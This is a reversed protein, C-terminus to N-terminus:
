LNGGALLPKIKREIEDANLPGVYKYLVHGDASIVFSEPAGTVGFDIGLRGDADFIIQEYPDGFQALWRTADETTDNWNLGILKIQGSRAYEMLLPHEDRCSVCWSGFVNLLYPKGLLSQKSIIREPAGLAGASFAPAPKGILASPLLQPNKGIGSWLVLGIAAFVALPVFARLM